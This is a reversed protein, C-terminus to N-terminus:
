LGLKEKLVQAYQRSIILKEGSSMAVELRGNFDPAISKIKSINVVAAKSARFFNRPLREELEYLRSAVEYVAARAYAFTKKDVSEFYLIDAPDLVFTKGDMTGTLKKDMGSLAAVLESVQGDIKRCRVVVELEDQSENEQITIKM